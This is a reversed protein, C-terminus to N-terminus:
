EPPPLPLNKSLAMTAWHFADKGSEKRGQRELVLRSEEDGRLLRGKELDLSGELVAITGDAQETETREQRGDLSM